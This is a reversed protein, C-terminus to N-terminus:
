LSIIEKLHGNTLSISVDVISNQSLNLYVLSFM